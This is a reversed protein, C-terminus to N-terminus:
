QSGEVLCEPCPVPLPHSETFDGVGWVLGNECNECEKTQDVLGTLFGRLFSFACYALFLWVVIMWSM